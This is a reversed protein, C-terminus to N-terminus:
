VNINRDWENKLVQLHELALRYEWAMYLKKALRWRQENNDPHAEVYQAIDWVDTMPSDLKGDIEIMASSDSNSM